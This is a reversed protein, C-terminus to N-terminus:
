LQAIAQLVLEYKCSVETCPKDNHHHEYALCLYELDNAGLGNLEKKMVYSDIDEHNRFSM